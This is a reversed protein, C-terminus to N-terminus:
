PESASTGGKRKFKGGKGNGNNFDDNGNGAALLHTSRNRLRTAADKGVFTSIVRAAKDAGVVRAPQQATLSFGLQGIVSVLSQETLPKDLDADVRVGNRWLVWSAGEPSFTGSEPPELGLAQAVDVAFRGLTYHNDAGLAATSAGGRDQAVVAATLSLVIVSFSLFIKRKM